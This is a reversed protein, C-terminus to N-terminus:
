PPTDALALIAADPRLRARVAMYTARVADRATDHMALTFALQPVGPLRHTRLPLEHEIWYKLYAGKFGSPALADVVRSDLQVAARNLLFFWQLTAWAASKMGQSTITDVVRDWDVAVRQTLLYFDLARILPSTASVHDAFASQVLMLVAADEACPVPLGNIWVRRRLLDNVMSDRMRGPRLVDWHLDVTAGNATLQVEHSATKGIAHLVFGGKQLAAIAHLREAFPVVVDVDGSGRISPEDYLWERVHAGKFVLYDIGASDLAAAARRLVHSQLMYAVDARRKASRLSDMDPATLNGVVGRDAVLSHWWGGLGVDALWPGWVANGLVDANPPAVGSAVIVKAAPALAIQQLYISM